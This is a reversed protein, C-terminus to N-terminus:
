VILNVASGVVGPFVLSLHMLVEWRTCDVLMHKRVDDKTSCMQSEAASGDSGDM